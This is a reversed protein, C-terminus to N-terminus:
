TTRLSKLERTLLNFFSEAVANDHCNGRWSTSHELNHAALFSAWHMSTFQSGRGLLDSGQVEAKTAVRGFAIGTVRIGHDSPEADVM